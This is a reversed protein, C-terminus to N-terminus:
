PSVSGTAVPEFASVFFRTLRHFSCPSEALEDVYCTWADDIALVRVHQCGSRERWRSRVVPVASKM